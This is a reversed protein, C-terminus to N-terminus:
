RRTQGHHLQQHTQYSCEKLRQSNRILAPVSGYEKDQKGIKNKTIIIILDRRKIKACREGSDILCLCLRFIKPRRRRDEAVEAHQLTAVYGQMQLVLMIFHRRHILRVRTVSYPPGMFWSKRRFWSIHFYGTLDHIPSTIVDGFGRQNIHSFQTLVDLTLSLAFPERKPINRLM